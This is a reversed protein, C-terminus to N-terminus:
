PPFALDFLHTRLYKKFTAVSIASSVSLSLNNWLSSACSYLAGAGINTKVRPVSLSIGTNSRLSRSPLSASLMAHLSTPLKAHITKYTLLSIKFLIRFKVPLWHLFHLLPVSCTFPPSKTVVCELQNQVWPLKTLDTDAIGYLLLTCYDLHSPVLNQVMWILTIAFVGCLKSITFAHAASQQYIHVSPSIRTM